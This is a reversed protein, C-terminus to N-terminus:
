KLTKVIIAPVGVAVSYSPVDKTVVSNAGIITGEGITVGPLITAKDGIWVRSGIVVPGKSILPRRSPYIQLSDISIDGHANDTITVKKGLLVHDKIIVSNSATIHCDDGIIVGSELILSPCPTNKERHWASIVSREGIEVKDGISIFESGIICSGSAFSYGVGKSKLQRSYYGTRLYKWCGKLSKYLTEPFLVALFKGLLLCFKRM